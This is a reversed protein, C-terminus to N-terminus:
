HHHVIGCKVCTDMGNIYIIYRFKSLWKGDKNIGYIKKKYGYACSDIGNPLITM